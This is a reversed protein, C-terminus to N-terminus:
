KHFTHMNISLRLYNNTFLTDENQAQATQPPLGQTLASFLSGLLTGCVTQVQDHYHM